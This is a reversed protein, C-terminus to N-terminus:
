RFEPRRAWRAPLARAHLGVRRGPRDSPLPVLCVLKRNSLAVLDSVWVEDGPLDTLVSGHSGFGPDLSGDSRYRVLALVRHSGLSASGAAVLKGDPQRVLNNLYSGPGSGVQTLVVGGSGFTSDLEGGRAFAVGAVAVAMLVALAAVHGKGFNMVAWEVARTEGPCGSLGM